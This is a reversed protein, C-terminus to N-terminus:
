GHKTIRAQSEILRSISSGKRVLCPVVGEGVRIHRIHMKPRTKRKRPHLGQDFALAPSCDLVKRKTLEATRKEPKMRRYEEVM